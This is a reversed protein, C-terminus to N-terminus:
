LNELSRFFPPRFPPAYIYYGEYLSYQIFKKDNKNNYIHNALYGQKQLGTNDLCINTYM